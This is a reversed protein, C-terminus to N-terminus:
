RILGLNQLFRAYKEKLVVGGSEVKKERGRGMMVGDCVFLVQGM